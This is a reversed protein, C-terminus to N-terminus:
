LATLVRWTPCAPPSPFAGSGRRKHHGSIIIGMSSGGTPSAAIRNSNSNSNSASIPIPASLPTPVEIPSVPEFDAPIESRRHRSRSSRPPRAPDGDSRPRHKRPREGADSRHHRHHSSRHPQPPLPPPPHPPPPTPGDLVRSPDRPPVDPGFSVRPDATISIPRNGGTPSVDYNKQPRHLSHRHRHSPTRPEDDGSSSAGGMLSISLRRFISM